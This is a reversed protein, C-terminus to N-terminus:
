TGSTLVQRRPADGSVISSVSNYVEELSMPRGNYKTIKYDPTRGVHQSVLAGLQGLYNMEIDVVTKAGELMSQVLETPFPHLLRVNVFRIRKGEAELMDITDLIVGKTSGWSVLAIDAKPDGFLVAKDEDLIEKLAVELKNMRKEVM